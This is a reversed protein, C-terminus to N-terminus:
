GNVKKRETVSEKYAWMILILNFVLLVSFLMYAPIYRGFHDAMMGPVSAFLLAGITM